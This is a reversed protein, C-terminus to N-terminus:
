HRPGIPPNSGGLIIGDVVGDVELLGWGDVIIAGGGHCCCHIVDKEGASGDISLVEDSFRLWGDQQRRRSSGLDLSAAALQRDCCCALVVDDGEGGALDSSGGRSHDAEDVTISPQRRRQDPGGMVGTIDAQGQQQRGWQAEGVLGGAENINVVRGRNYGGVGNVLIAWTSLEELVDAACHCTPVFLLTDAVAHCSSLLEVGVISM